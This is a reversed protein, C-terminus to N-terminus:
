RLKSRLILLLTGRTIHTVYGNMFLLSCPQFTYLAIQRCKIGTKCKSNVLTVAELGCPIQWKAAAMAADRMHLEVSWVISCCASLKVFFDKVYQETWM